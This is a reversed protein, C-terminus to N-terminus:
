RRRALRKRNQLRPRSDVEYLADMVKYANIELLQEFLDLGKHQYHTGLNHLTIAITVLEPADAAMSTRIDGLEQGSGNIMQQSVEYIKEPMHPTLSALTRSVFRTKSREFTRNDIFADLVSKFQPSLDVNSEHHLIWTLIEDIEDNQLGLLEIFYNSCNSRHERYEWLKRVSYAFGILAKVNKTKRLKKYEVECWDHNAKLILRFGLVEGFLQDSSDSSLLLVKTMWNNLMADDMWHVASAITIGFDRGGIIQPYAQSLKLLFENADNVNCWPLFRRILYVLAFEWLEIADGYKLSRGLFDLWCNYEPKERFLLGYSIAEILTYNGQPVVRGSDHWILSGKRKEKKDENTRAIPWGNDTSSMWRELRNCWEDSLGEPRKIRKKLAEACSQYFSDSNFGKSKFHSIINQLEHLDKNSESFCEVVYEIARSKEPPLLEAVALAKEPNKKCLEGLTKAHVSSSLYRMTGRHDNENFENFCKAIDEVSALEMQGLSMPSEAAMFGSSREVELPNRVNKGFKRKEEKVIKLAEPSLEEKPLISLFDFRVGRNWRLYDRRMKADTKDKCKYAELSLIRNELVKRKSDELNPFLASILKLSCRYSSSGFESGLFFRRDDELLYTLIFDPHSTILQSIGKIILRHQPSFLSSKKLNVFAIFNTTDQIAYLKIADELAGPLYPKESSEEDESLRFWIGSVDLYREQIPQYKTKLKDTLRDLFPWFCEVFEKPSAKAIAGLNHWQHNLEALREFPVCEANEIKWQSIEADENEEVSVDEPEQKEIKNFQNNFYEVAIAPALESNEYSILSVIDQAAYGRTEDLKVLFSALKLSLEDWKDNEQLVYFLNNIEKENKWYKDLLFIVEEHKEVIVSSLIIIAGRKQIESGQMWFEIHSNKLKDFWDDQVSISQCIKLFLNENELLKSIVLIEENRPSPSAGITEILLYLIHKRLKKFNDLLLSQIQNKYEEPDAERLYVLATNLKPRINLNNQHSFVFDTLSGKKVISRTWVFAQLTQHAFSIQKKDISKSLIGASCLYDIDEIDEEYKFLPLGQKADETMETAISVLLATRRKKEKREGLSNAWIHDYLEIHSKFHEQPHNQIYQLYFNLNSPRKLFEKFENDMFQLEISLDEFTAQVDEWELLPLKIEHAELSNFRQDYQFEFPRSSAIIHVNPTNHLSQVLDLLVSLRNTKVDILESLADLQDLLIFVQRTKALLKVCEHIPAPLHLYESLSRFDTVSHGLKDAKIGLVIQNDELLQQTIRALLASKGTGPEGLLITSSHFQSHVSTFWDDEQKREIWKDNVSLTQKWNALYESSDKFAEIIKNEDINTSNESEKEFIKDRNTIGALFSDIKDSIIEEEYFQKLTRPSHVLRQCIEDWGWVKVEFSGKKKNEEELKRAVEQIKADNPATTALIFVDPKPVFNKAKKVEDGLEKATVEKGFNSKKGKCQICTFVGDKSRGYVDVGLQEQGGRGNLQINPDQLLEGWLTHCFKEFDQWNSPPRYQKNNQPM